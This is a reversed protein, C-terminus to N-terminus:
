STTFHLAFLKRGRSHILNSLYLVQLCILFFCPSLWALFYSRRIFYLLQKLYKFTKTLQWFNGNITLFSGNTTLLKQWNDFTGDATLIKLLNVFAETLKWFSEDITLLKQCNDFTEFFIDSTEFPKKSM